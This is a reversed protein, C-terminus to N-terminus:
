TMTLSENGHLSNGPVLYTYLVLSKVSLLSQHSEDIGLSKQKEGRYECRLYKTRNSIRKLWSSHFVVHGVVIGLFALVLVILAIGLPTTFEKEVIIMLSMPKSVVMVVWSLDTPSATCITARRMPPAIM